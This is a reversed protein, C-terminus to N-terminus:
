VLPFWVLLILLCVKLRKRRLQVTEKLRYLVCQFCSENKNGRQVRLKENRGGGRRGEGGGGEERGREKREKSGGREEEEGAISAFVKM